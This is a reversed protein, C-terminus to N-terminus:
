KLLNTNVNQAPIRSESSPLWHGNFLVDCALPVDICQLLCNFVKMVLAERVMETDGMGGSTSDKEVFVCKVRVHLNKGDVDVVSSIPWYPHTRCATM